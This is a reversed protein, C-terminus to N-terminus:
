VATGQEFKAGLIMPSGNVSFAIEEHSHPRRPPKGALEAIKPHIAHPISMVNGAPTILRTETATNRGSNPASHAIAIPISTELAAEDLEGSEQNEKGFLDCPAATLFEMLNMERYNQPIMALIREKESKAVNEAIEQLKVEIDKLLHYVPDALEGAIKAAEADTKIKRPPM